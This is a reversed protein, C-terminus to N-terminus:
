SAALRLQLNSIASQLNFSAAPLRLWISSGSRHAFLFVEGGLFIKVTYSYLYSM